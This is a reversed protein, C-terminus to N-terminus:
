NATSFGHPHPAAKHIARARANSSDDIRGGIQEAKPGM